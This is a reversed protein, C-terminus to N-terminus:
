VAIALPGRETTIGRKLRFRTMGATSPKIKKFSGKVIPLVSPRMKAQRATTRSVRYRFNRTELKLDRTATKFKFEFGSVRFELLSLTQCLSRGRSDKFFGKPAGM